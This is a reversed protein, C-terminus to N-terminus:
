LWVEEKPIGAIKAMDVTMRTGRNKAGTLFFGVVIDPKKDVMLQNRTAFDRPYLQTRGDSPKAPFPRVFYGAGRGYAAAYADVGGQPCEGHWLQPPDASDALYKDIYSFIVGM